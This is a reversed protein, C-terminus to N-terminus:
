RLWCQVLFNGTCHQGMAPLCHKCPFYGICFLTTDLMRSCHQMLITNLWHQGFVDSVVNCLFVVKDINAWLACYIKALFGNYNWFLQLKLHTTAQKKVLYLIVFCNQSKKKLTSMWKCSTPCCHVPALVSQFM